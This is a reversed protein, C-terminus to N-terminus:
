SSRRTTRSARTPRRSRVGWTRRSSRPPEATLERVVPDVAAYGWDQSYAVELGEISVTNARTEARYDADSEPLSHRDMPHPGSMVDLLLASDEVTRTMPGIHEVSEWGNTGPLAPDRHEPYLPVRGFSAKLGYLGCFSATIRVSGGGDSGLALPVMGSAVAAALGGSSGGPTLETDWPNRTTGFVANETVAQFGFESANTKGVVIGGAERIREVAASDREPVFKEYLKSGFTTRLGETMILDKIGVPVGCLPGVDEGNEIARTAKRAADIAGEEDVVSFANLDADLEEIRGLAAEVADTPTLEGERIATAQESGSLACIETDTYSSV